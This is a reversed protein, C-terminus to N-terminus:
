TLCKYAVLTEVNRSFDNGTKECNNELYQKVDSQILINNTRYIVYEIKGERVLSELEELSIKEILYFSKNSYFSIDFMTAIPGEISNNKILNAADAVAKNFDPTILPNISEQAFFINYGILMGILIFLGIKRYKTFYFILPIACLGYPITILWFNNKIDSLFLVDARIRLLYFGALCLIATVFIISFAKRTFKIKSNAIYNAILLCLIPIIPTFYRVIGLVLIFFTLFFVLFYTLFKYFQDEKKWNYLLSLAALLLLPPTFKWTITGLFQYVREIFNTQSRNSILVTSNHLTGEFFNTSLLVGFIFIFVVSVAVVITSFKLFKFIEKKKLFYLFFAPFLLIAAEKTLISVIFSLIFFIFYKNSKTKQWKIFSFITLLMFFTFFSGDIDIIQSQEIHLSNIALLFMSIIGVKKGGLLDGIFYILLVSAISFIVIFFRLAM